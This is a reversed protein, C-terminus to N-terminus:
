RDEIRNADSAPTAPLNQRAAWPQRQREIVEQAMAFLVGTSWAFTMLGAIAIMGELLRWNQPLHLESGVTTYQMLAFYFAAHPNKIAGAALLFVAWAMVEFLHVFVIILSAVVVTGVGPRVGKSNATRRIADSATLTLQMGVGHIWMTIAIMVTGWLVEEVPTSIFLLEESVQM